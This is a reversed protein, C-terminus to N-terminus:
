NDSLFGRYNKNRMMAEIQKLTELIVGVIIIISTGGFSVAAGFVGSFVVPILAIITIGIAGIFVVSKLIKALYDSTQKGPNVGPIVGGSRKLNDAIELPNFTISTYFYAFAIILGVYIAIGFSYIPEQPSFWYNQSLYKTWEPTTKWFLNTIVVPFQLISSAFIIPMVGAVNIKLPIHTGKGGFVRRGVMKQSYSVPIRREADQLLCVLLVVLVIVGTIIAIALTQHGANRGFVFQAFLKALDTPVGSIINILLIISIGNGVGHETIQEGLWMLATAGAILAIIVVLISCTYEFGNMTSVGKLLGQRGFGIAIAVSEAIAFALTIFRTIREMKKRGDEGERQMEELKPIAVTLLQVIISSTIYPTISLAFLSLREFSGGTFANLYGLNGAGLSDLLSSFYSTNVGPIPILSGLRVVILIGLTFLLRRRVNANRIARGLTGVM